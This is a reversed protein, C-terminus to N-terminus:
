LIGGKKPALPGVSVPGMNILDTIGPPPATPAARGRPPVGAGSRPPPPPLGPRYSGRPPGGPFKKKMSRQLAQEARSIVELTEQKARRLTALEREAEGEAQHYGDQPGATLLRAGDALVSDLQGKRWALATEIAPLCVTRQHELREIVKQEAEEKQAYLEEAFPCESSGDEEVVPLQSQKQELEQIASVLQARRGVCEGRTKENAHRKDSAQRGEPISAPEM